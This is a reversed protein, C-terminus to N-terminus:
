PTQHKAIRRLRHGDGTRRPPFHVREGLFLDSPEKLGALTMAQKRQPDQQGGGPEAETLGESEEPVSGGGMQEITANMGLDNLFEEAVARDGESEIRVTM